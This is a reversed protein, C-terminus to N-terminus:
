GMAILNLLADRMHLLQQARTDVQRFSGIRSAKEILAVHRPGELFDNSHRRPAKAVACPESLGSSIARSSLFHRLGRMHLSSM